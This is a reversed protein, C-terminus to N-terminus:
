RDVSPQIPTADSQLLSRVRLFTGISYVVLDQTEFGEVSVIEAWLDPGEGYLTLM